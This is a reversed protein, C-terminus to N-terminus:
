KKSMCPFNMMNMGMDSQVKCSTCMCSMNESKPMNGAAMSCFMGMQSTMKGDMKMSCDKMTSCDQCKCMEMMKANMM